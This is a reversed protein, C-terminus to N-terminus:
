CKRKVFGIKLYHNPWNRISFVACLALCFRAARFFGIVKVDLKRSNASSYGVTFSTSDLRIKRNSVSFLDHRRTSNAKHM